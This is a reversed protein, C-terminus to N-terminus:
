ETIKFSGEYFRMNGWVEMLHNRDLIETRTLRDFIRVPSNYGEFKPWNEEDPNGNKIFNVWPNHIDNIINDQTEQSEGDFFLHSFEHEKVAFVCPLDFAHSVLMGNKKASKSLFEFRYMWVDNFKRQANAVKISPMEFAYDTAFHVFTSGFKEDFHQDSYYEEVQTYGISNGNKDFMDRVMEWSNPFGTKEPHVFMTGEHLNNGIILRVGKSSGDAIADIPRVPLLDDIVPCPLFIGSNEYQHKSAMYEIGKILEYPDMTRLKILDEETWGMGEIFLDMNKRAMVRTTVCNCLASQAIVQNFCGKVAPVAMLTVVAAGGASEGGITINDPDGGFAEINDRIWQLALVMDSIACNSEFDECGKYTTFDFVGLVNLRYQFNVYIIGDKAFADGHYLKDNASGTMYGGGHIWVFVPLKEGETPRVVNLTLCNESGCFKGHNFQPAVDGYQKADLIGDWPTVPRARKFRLNGIPPQVFPIGLYKVLGNDTHGQIKGSKTTVLLNM